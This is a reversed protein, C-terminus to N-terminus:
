PHSADKKPHKVKVKLNLVVKPIRKDIVRLFMWIMDDPEKNTQKDEL